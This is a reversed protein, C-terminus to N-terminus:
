CHRRRFFASTGLILGGAILMILTSPEPSDPIQQGIDFYESGQWFEVDLADVNDGFEMGISNASLFLVNVNTFDTVFIDAASFNGAILFPSGPALSFIAYDEGAELELNSDYDWVALADIEDDVDLGMTAASAFLNFGGTGPPSVLVDAPSYMGGLSPSAADLSFYIPTGHVRNETAGFPTLELADIDDTVTPNPNTQFQSISPMAGYRNQNASLLNIPQGPKLPNVIAAAGMGSMVDVPSLNTIGNAIFRDAPAQSLDSQWRYQTGAMGQSQRDGSFYIVQQGMPDEEGNTHGDNNDAPTALGYATDSVHLVPGPGGVDWGQYIASPNEGYIDGPTNGYTVVSPSLRDLSIPDQDGGGTPHYSPPRNANAVSTMAVIVAAVMVIYVPLKVNRRVRCM